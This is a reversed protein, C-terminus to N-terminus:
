PALKHADFNTDVFMHGNATCTQPYSTTVPNGAKACAEYSNIITQSTLTSILTYGAIFIAIIVMAILVAIQKQPLSKISSLRM